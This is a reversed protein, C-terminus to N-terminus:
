FYYKVALTIQRGGTTFVPKGTTTANTNTQSLTGDAATFNLSEDSNGALGFQRLPHNLFNQAGM